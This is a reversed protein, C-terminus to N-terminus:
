KSDGFLVVNYLLQSLIFVVSISGFFRLKYKQIYCSLFPTLTSQKNSLFYLLISLLFLNLLVVGFPAKEVMLNCVEM